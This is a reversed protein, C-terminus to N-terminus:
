ACCIKDTEKDGMLFVMHRYGKDLLYNAAKQGAQEYNVDIWSISIPFDPKGIILHPMSLHSLMGALAKSLIATHIIVGDAQEQIMIERITQPAEKLTAHKLLMAYNKADLYQSIDTMIEFMHTNEFAVNRHLHWAYVKNTDM